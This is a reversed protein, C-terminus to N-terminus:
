DVMLIIEPDVQKLKIDSFKQVRYTSRALDEFPLTTAVGLVKTGAALGSEIGSVADEIVLCDKPDFGLKQAGILYPQPDPKGKTVDDGCTMTKPIPLGAANLGDEALLRGASTVITWRDDPLAKLFDLVGEYAVPGEADNLYFDYVREKEVEVDHGPLLEAILEDTKRGHYHINELPIGHYDGWKQWARDNVVTSDILIGDMDFLIAKCKIETM